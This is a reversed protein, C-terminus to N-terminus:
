GQRHAVGHLNCIRHCRGMMTPVKSVKAAHKKFFIIQTLLLSATSLTDRNGKWSPQRLVAVSYSHAAYTFLVEWPRNGHFCLEFLLSVSNYYLFQNHIQTVKFTLHIITYCNNTMLKINCHRQLLRQSFVSQHKKVINRLLDATNDMINLM